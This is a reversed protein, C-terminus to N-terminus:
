YRRRGDGPLKLALLDLELDMVHRAISVEYLNTLHVVVLGVAEHEANGDVVLVTEVAHMAPASLYPLNARVRRDHKYGGFTIESAGSGVRDRQLVQLVFAIFLAQLGDHLSRGLGPLILIDIPGEVLGNAKTVVRLVGILHSIQQHARFILLCPYNDYCVCHQSHRHLM